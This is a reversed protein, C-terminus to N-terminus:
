GGTRTYGEFHVKLFGKIRRMPSLFHFIDLPFYLPFLFTSSPWHKILNVIHWTSCQVNVCM